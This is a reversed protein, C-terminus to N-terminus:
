AWAGCSSLLHEVALSGCSSLGHAVVVSARSGLAWLGCSFGVCQSARASCHLTAGGVVVLCLGCAAVFVWHLWLYICVCVYIYVFNRIKKVPSGDSGSINNAFNFFYM